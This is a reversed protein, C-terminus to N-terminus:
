VPHMEFPRFGRGSGHHKKMGGPATKDRNRQNHPTNKKQGILIACTQRRRIDRVNILQGVRQYVGEKGSGCQIGKGRKDPPLSRAEDAHNDDQQAGTRYTHRVLKM